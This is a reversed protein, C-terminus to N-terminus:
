STRTTTISTLHNNWAAPLFGGKSLWEDLDQIMWSLEDGLEIVKGTTNTRRLEAIIARINALTKNPDM